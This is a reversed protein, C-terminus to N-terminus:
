MSQALLWLLYFAAAILFFYSFWRPLRAKKQNHRRASSPGRWENEEWQPEYSRNVMSAKLREIEDLQNKYKAAARSYVSDSGVPEWSKSDESYSIVPISNYLFDNNKERKEM